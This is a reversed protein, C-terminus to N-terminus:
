QSDVLPCIILPFLLHLSLSQTDGTNNKMHGEVTTLGFSSFARKMRLISQDTLGTDNRFSLQVIHKNRMPMRLKLQANM